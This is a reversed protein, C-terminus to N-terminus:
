LTLNMTKEKKRTEKLIKKKECFFSKFVINSVVSHYSENLKKDMKNDM